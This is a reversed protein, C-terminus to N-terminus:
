VARRLMKEYTVPAFFRLRVRIAVLLPFALERVAEDGLVLDDALDLIAQLNGKDEDEDEEDVTDVADVTDLHLEGLGHLASGTAAARVYVWHNINKEWERM